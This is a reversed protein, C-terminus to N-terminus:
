LLSYVNALFKKRKEYQESTINKEAMVKSKKKNSFAGVCERLEDKTVGKRLKSNIWAKERKFM